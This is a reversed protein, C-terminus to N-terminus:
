HRLEDVVAPLAYERGVVARAYFYNCRAPESLADLEVLGGEDCPFMLARGPHYLSEFRLMFSHSSATAHTTM